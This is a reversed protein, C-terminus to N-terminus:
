KNEKDKRGEQISLINDKTMRISINGSIDTRMIPIDLSSITRLTETSPHKYDNDKGVSIVALEPSVAEIFEADSSTKSGHHAVKLFDTDIGQESSISKELNQTADGTFLFSHEGYDMRMVVSYDNEDTLIADDSGAAIVTFLTDGFSLMDGDALTDIDINEEECLKNFKSYNDEEHARESVYIKEIPFGNEILEYIGKSHDNHMHSLFVADLKFVFEKRFLNTLTHDGSGTDGGDVLINDGTDCKILGSDGQGVSVFCVETFGRDIFIVYSASLALCLAVVWLIILAKKYKRIM